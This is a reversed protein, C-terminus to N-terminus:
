CLRHPHGTIALEELFEFFELRDGVEDRRSFIKTMMFIVFLFGSRFAYWTSTLADDDDDDRETSVVRQQCYPTEDLAQYEPPGCRYPQRHVSVYERNGL